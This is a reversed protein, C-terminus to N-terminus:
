LEDHSNEELMSKIVAEMEPLIYITEGEIRIEKLEPDVTYWKVGREKLAKQTNRYSDFANFINDTM